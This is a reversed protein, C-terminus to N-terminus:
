IPMSVLPEYFFADSMHNVCVNQLYKKTTTKRNAKQKKNHKVCFLSKMM